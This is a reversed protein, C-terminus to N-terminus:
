DETKIQDLEFVYANVWTKRSTANKTLPTPLLYRPLSKSDGSIIQFAFRRGLL